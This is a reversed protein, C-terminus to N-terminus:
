GKLKYRMGGRSVDVRKTSKFKEGGRRVTIIRLGVLYQTRM